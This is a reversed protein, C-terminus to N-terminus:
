KNSEERDKAVLKGNELAMTFPTTPEYKSFIVIMQNEVAQLNWLLKDGDKINLASVVTNPITSRLSESKTSAKTATTFDAMKDLMISM